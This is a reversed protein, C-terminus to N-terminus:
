VPLRGGAGSGSSGVRSGPEDRRRTSRRARRRARSAAAQRPSTGRRRRDRRGSARGREQRSRRRRIPAAPSAPRPHRLEGGGRLREVPEGDVHGGVMEVHQDVPVGGPPGPQLEIRDGTRHLVQTLDEVVHVLLRGGAPLVDGGPELTQRTGKVTVRRREVGPAGGAVHDGDALDLLCDALGLDDGGLLRREDGQEVLEVPGADVVGGQATAELRRHSRTSGGVGGQGVVEGGGVGGVCDLRVRDADVAVPGLRVPVQPGMEVEGLGVGPSPLLHLADPAPHLLDGGLDHGVARDVICELHELRVRVAGGGGGGVQHREQGVAGLLRELLQRAGMEVHGLRDAAALHLQCGGPPRQPGVVDAGALVEGPRPRHPPGDLPILGMGQVVFHAGDVVLAEGAVVELHPGLHRQAVPHATQM